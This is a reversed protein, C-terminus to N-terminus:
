ENETSIATQQWRTKPLMARRILAAGEPTLAIESDLADLEEESLEEFDGNKVYVVTL